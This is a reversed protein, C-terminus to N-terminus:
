KKRENKSGYSEAASFRHMYEAMDVMNVIRVPQANTEQLTRDQIGRAIDFMDMKKFEEEAARRYEASGKDYDEKTLPQLRGGVDIMRAAGLGDKLSEFYKTKVLQPNRATASFDKTLDEIFQLRNQNAEDVFKANGSATKMDTLKRYEGFGRLQLEEGFNAMFGEAGVSTSSGYAYLSTVAQRIASERDKSSMGKLGSFFDAKSGGLAMETVATFPSTLTERVTKLRQALGRRDGGSLDLLARLNMDSISGGGELTKIFDVMQPASLKQVIGAGTKATFGASSLGIATLAGSIGSTNGTFQAYAQIGQAAVRMSREDAIGTGSTLQSTTGLVAATNAMNTLRLSDAISGSTQVFTQATRSKDFGAAVAQSLVAELVKTNDQGGATQNIMGLNGLLQDYSGLGSRGLRVMAATQSESAMIGGGVGGRTGLYNTLQNQSSVFEAMTMELSAALGMPSQPMLDAPKLVGVPASGRRQLSDRLTEPMTRNTEKYMRDLYKMADNASDGVYLRGTDLFNEVNKGGLNMFGTLVELPISAAMANRKQLAAAQQRNEPLIARSYFENQLHPKGLMEEVTVGMMKMARANWIKPSIQYAGYMGHKNVINYDENRTEIARVAKMVTNANFQNDSTPSFSEQAFGSIEESQLRNMRNVFDKAIYREGGVAYQGVLMVGEKRAQILSLREEISRRARLMPLTNLEADQLARARDNAEAVKTLRAADVAIGGLSTFQSGRRFEGFAGSVGSTLDGSYTTYPSGLYTGAVGAAQNTGSSLKNIAGSALGGIGGMVLGAGIPGGMMFGGAVALGGLAMGGIGSVLGGLREQREIDIGIKGAEGAAIHSRAISDAGGIFKGRGPMFMNRRYRLINEASTMDSSEIQERFAFQGLRASAQMKNLNADMIIRDQAIASQNYFQFGAMGLGLGAAAIGAGRGIIGPLQSGPPQGTPPLGKQALQAQQISQDLKSLTELLKNQAEAKLTQDGTDAAMVFADRAKSFERAQVGLEKKIDELVRVTAKSNADDSQRLNEITKGLQGQVDGANFASVRPVDALTYGLYSSMAATPRSQSVASNVAQSFSTARDSPFDFGYRAGLRAQDVSSMGSLGHSIQSKLDNIAAAQSGSAMTHIKFGGIDAIPQHFTIRGGGGINPVMSSQRQQARNYADTALKSSLSEMFQSHATQGQPTLFSPSQVGAQDSVRNITSGLQGTVQNLAGLFQQFTGIFNKLQENAGQLQEPLGGLLDKRIGTM